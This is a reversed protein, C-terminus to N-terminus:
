YSIRRTAAAAGGRGVRVRVDLAIAGRALVKLPNIDIEQVEPCATMLASLRLLTDVAAQEDAAPRGRYGRLLPVSKLSAVMEQAALDTLPHLRFVTDGLLDVLIGGSGCAVLPGFTPDAVGGALLEVGGTVMQQVLAGSMRDGIRASLTHFAERLAAETGIDLIVGGVETKHLIEPGVAKVAVPYGITRAAAAADDASKVLAAGAVAIGVANMLRQGEEPTIWGDGRGLAQNVIARAEDPRVAPLM